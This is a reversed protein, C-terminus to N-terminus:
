WWQYVQKNNPGRHWPTGVRDDAYPDYYDVAQEEPEYDVAQTPSKYPDEPVNYTNPTESAM